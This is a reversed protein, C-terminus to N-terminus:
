GDDVERESFFVVRATELRGLVKNVMRSRATNKRARERSSDGDRPFHDRQGAFWLAPWALAQDPTAGALPSPVGDLDIEPYARLTVYSLAASTVWLDADGLREVVTRLDDTPHQDVVLAVDEVGQDTLPGPAVDDRGQAIRRVVSKIVTTGYAAPNDVQLPTPSQQRKFVSVRAEHLLNEVLADAGGLRWRAAVRRAQQAAEDTTFWELVDEGSCVDIIAEGKRSSSNGV